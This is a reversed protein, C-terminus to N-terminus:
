STLSAVSKKSVKYKKYDRSPLPSSGHKLVDLDDDSAINDDRKDHDANNGQPRKSSKTTPSTKFETRGLDESVMGRGSKPRGLPHLIHYDYKDIKLRMEEM